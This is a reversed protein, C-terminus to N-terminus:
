KTGYTHRWDALVDKATVAAGQPRLQGDRPELNAYMEAYKDATETVASNDGGLFVPTVVCRCFNHFKKGLGQVGRAKVGKGVGGVYGKRRNGNEDLAISSDVGRGVVQGASNSSRYVAGRSALMGCFACCGPQPVRAYGVIVPDRDINTDITGRAAGAVLKQVGGGVLSLVSAPSQGFLPKVGFRVLNNVQAQNLSGDATAVFPTRLAEQRLDEYWSAALESSAVTYPRVVDPLYEILANRTVVADNSGVAAILAKTDRIALTSLDDLASRFDSVQELTAM